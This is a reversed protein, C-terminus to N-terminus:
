ALRMVELVYQIKKVYILYETDDDTIDQLHQLSDSAQESFQEKNIKKTTFKLIVQALQVTAKAMETYENPEENELYEGDQIISKMDSIVGLRAEVNIRRVYKDKCFVNCFYHPKDLKSMTRQYQGVENVTTSKGETSM